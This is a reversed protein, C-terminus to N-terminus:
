FVDQPLQTLAHQPSPPNLSYWPDAAADEERHTVGGDEMLLHSSFFLHFPFFFASLIRWAEGCHSCCLQLDVSPIQVNAFGNVVSEQFHNSILTHDQAHPLLSFQIVTSLLNFNQDTLM